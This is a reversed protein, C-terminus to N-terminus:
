QIIGVASGAQVVVTAVVQQTPDAQSSAIIHFTGPSNPATYVGAATITGGAAGEQIFWTVAQNASGTVTASFAQQDGLNLTATPPTISVLLHVAIAAVATKTPDAQSTAVVHYLGSTDPATYTGDAAVTGGAAGEQVSWRVSPDSAGVVVAAFTQQGHPLLTASTPAVSVAIPTPTGGGGGGCAPLLVVSFLALSRIRGIM